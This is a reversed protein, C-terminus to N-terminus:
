VSRLPIQNGQSFTDLNFPTALNNYLHVLFDSIILLLVSAVFQSPTCCFACMPRNGMINSPCLFKDPFPCISTIRFEQLTLGNQISRRKSPVKKPPSPPPPSPNDNYHMEKPTFTNEVSKNLTFNFCQFLLHM